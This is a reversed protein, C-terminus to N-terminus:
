GPTEQIICKSNMQKAEKHLSYASPIEPNNMLIEHYAESSINYKEKIYLNQKILCDKKEQSAEKVSIVPRGDKNEFAVTEGTDTHRLQVHEYIFGEDNFTTCVTDACNKIRKRKYKECYESWSKVRKQKRSPESKALLEKNSMELQECKNTVDPLKKNTEKLDKRLQDM